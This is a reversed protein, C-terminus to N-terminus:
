QCGAREGWVIMTITLFEQYGSHKVHIAALYTRQVQIIELFFSM